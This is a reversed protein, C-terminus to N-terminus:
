LPTLWHNLYLLGSYWKNHLLPLAGLHWRTTTQTCQLDQGNRIFYATYIERSDGSIGENFQSVPFSVMQVHLM